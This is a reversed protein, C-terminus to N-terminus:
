KVDITGAVVYEDGLSETNSPGSTVKLTASGSTDEFFVIVEYSGARELRAMAADVLLDGAKWRSTPYPSPRGVAGAMPAHDANFRSKPPRSDVHLGIEFDVTTTGLVKFYTKILFAENTAVHDPLDVGLVEVFAKGSRDSLVSGIKRGPAPAAKLKFDANPAVPLPERARPAAQADSTAVAGADSAVAAVSASPALEVRAGDGSDKKSCAAVFACLV